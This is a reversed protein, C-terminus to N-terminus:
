DGHVATVDGLDANLWEADAEYDELSEAVSQELLRRREDRTLQMMELLESSREIGEELMDDGLLHQAEDKRFVGEAVARHVNRKLWTPQEFSVPWPEDKKWGSSQLHEFWYRGYHDSIIGLERLRYVLAHLSMKYRRKLMGLETLGISSRREGVERVLANRPALFASAFRYAAKEEDVDPGVELVIHGLEHALSLRQRDGPVGKRYGAAAAVPKGHGSYALLSLGDFGEPAEVELVHIHRVEMEDVVSMVPADGLGWDKRVKEAASEAEDLSNVKAKKVPVGLKLDGVAEQVRVRQELENALLSSIRTADGRSLAPSKRYAIPKVTLRPAELLRSTQVGLANAISNLVRATPESLGREYRSLMQKSVM